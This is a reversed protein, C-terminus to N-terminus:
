SKTRAELLALDSQSLKRRWQAVLKPDPREYSSDDSYELMQKVFNDPNFSYVTEFVHIWTTDGEPDHWVPAQGFPLTARCVM